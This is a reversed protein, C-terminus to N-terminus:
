KSYVYRRWLLVYRIGRKIAQVLLFLPGRYLMLILYWYIYHPLWSWLKFKSEGVTRDTWISPVETVTFGKLFAKATLEMGLEFGGASEITITQLFSRRYLKFSNTIDCTPVRAFYYLTLGAIRSMLKKLLPGGIQKGGPMHRSGCVIDAGQEYAHIMDPLVRLDDALDAM